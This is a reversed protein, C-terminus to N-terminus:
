RLFEVGFSMRIKAGWSKEGQLFIGWIGFDPIVWMTVLLPPWGSWWWRLCELLSDLERKLLLVWLNWVKVCHGCAESSYNLGWHGWLGSIKVGASLTCDSKVRLTRAQGSGVYVLFLNYLIPGLATNVISQKRWFM